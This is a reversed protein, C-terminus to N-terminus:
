SGVASSHPVQQGQTILKRPMAQIGTRVNDVTQVMADWQDWGFGVTQGEGGRPGPMQIEVGTDSVFARRGGLEVTVKVNVQVRAEM